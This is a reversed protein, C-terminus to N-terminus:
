HPPPGQDQSSGKDTEVESQVLVPVVEPQEVAHPVHQDPDVGEVGPLGLRLLVLHKGKGIDENFLM